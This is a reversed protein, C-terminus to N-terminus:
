VFLTQPLDLTYTSNASGQEEGLANWHRRLDVLAANAAGITGFERVLAADVKELFLAPFALRPARLGCDVLTACVEIIDAGTVDATFQLAHLIKIEMRSNPVTQVHLMFRVYMDMEYASDPGTPAMPLFVRDSVKGTDLFLFPTRHNDNGKITEITMPRM